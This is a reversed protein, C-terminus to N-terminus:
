IEPQKVEITQSLQSGDKAILTITASDGLTLPKAAQMLMLHRGLPAFTVEGNAPIIIQDLHQMKAIDGEIVTDHMMVMGFDPSETSQITIDSDTHNTLKFYGAMASVNPPAPRIWADSMVLGAIADSNVRHTASGHSMPHADSAQNANTNNAVLTPPSIHDEAFYDELLILDSSIQDQKHPATIVGAMEGAPNILILSAGHDVQYFGDESKQKVFLIGLQKAFETTTDIDGRLGIFDEDFYPVYNKLREQTDREPDVSVMIVRYNGWKNQETLQKKVLALTRMTTPCIDPCNTFGFFIINWYGQLNEINFPAGDQDIFDVYNLAKPNPLIVAKTLAPLARAPEKNQQLYIGAAVAILAIIAVLRISNKSNSMMFVHIFSLHM